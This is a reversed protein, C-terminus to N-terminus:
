GASPSGPANPGKSVVQGPGAQRGRLLTNVVLLRLMGTAADLAARKEKGSIRGVEMRLTDGPAAVRRRRALRSIALIFLLLVALLTWTM